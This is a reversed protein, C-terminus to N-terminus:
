AHPEGILMRAGPPVRNLVPYAPLAKRLRKQWLLASVRARSDVVWCECPRSRTSYYALNPEEAPLLDRKRQREPSRPNIEYPVPVVQHGTVYPSLVMGSTDIVVGTVVSATSRRARPVVSTRPVPVSGSAKQPPGHGKHIASSYAPNIRSELAM